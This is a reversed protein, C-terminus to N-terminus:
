SHNDLNYIKLMLFYYSALFLLVAILIAAAVPHSWSHIIALQNWTPLCLATAMLIFCRLAWRRGNM